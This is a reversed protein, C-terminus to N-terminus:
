PQSSALPSGSPPKADPARLYLPKVPAIPALGSAIEALTRAHPQLGPLYAQAEGGRERVAAAVASAGSGVILAGQRGIGRAAEEPTLLLAESVDRGGAVFSQVYLSGRRADVAVILQRSGLRKGLVEETGPEIRSEEAGFAMAALSTIGVVPKGLALALARAASIGVRVGTFTGPGLTVAIRDIAAFALGAGDMVEAIMPFLREAHGSSREEYAERLLREGGADQWRVAVSVAGFCTDFALVNM